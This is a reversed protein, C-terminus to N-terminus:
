FDLLIEARRNVRRGEPSDEGTSTTNPLRPKNKGHGIIQIQDSALGSQNFFEMVRYARRKSLDLNYADTGLADAHGSITLQKEPKAMLLRAVIELQKRTRLTLTDANLDFYIALSDGGQPNKILPTYHIDGDSVQKAYDSLFQDLNIETIVWPADADKRKLTMGFTAHNEKEPAQLRVLMGASGERSFMERLANKPLLQYNGDEFMICLGAIAPYSVQSMDVSQIATTPDFNQLSKIFHQATDYASPENSSNQTVAVQPSTFTVQDVTWSEDAKVSLVIKIIDGSTLNLQWTDSSENVRNYPTTGQLILQSETAFKQLQDIQEQSLNKAGLIEILPKIDGSQNATIVTERIKAMLAEATLTETIKPMEDTVTKPQSTTTSQPTTSVDQTDPTPEYNTSCKSLSLIIAIAVLAVLFVLLTIISRSIKM